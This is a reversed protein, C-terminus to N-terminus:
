ATVAGPLVILTTRRSRTRVKLLGEDKLLRLQRNLSERSAGLMRALDSQKLRLEVGEQTRVGIKSCLQLLMRRTKERLSGEGLVEIHTWAERCRGALVELLLRCASPDTLLWRLQDARVVLLVTREVAMANFPAEAGDLLAIEGFFDGPRAFGLTTERGQASLRTLMVCGEQVVYLCDTTQGQTTIWAGTRYSKVAVPRGYLGAFPSGPGFAVPPTPRAERARLTSTANAM